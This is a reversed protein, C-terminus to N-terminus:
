ACYICSAWLICFERAWRTSTPLQVDTTQHMKNLTIKYQTTFIFNQECNVFSYVSFLIYKLGNLM